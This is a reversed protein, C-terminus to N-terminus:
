ERDGRRELLAYRLIAVGIGISLTAHIADMASLPEVYQNIAYVGLGSLVAAFFGAQQGRRRNDASVEDNILRRVERSRFWGGGTAMVLLLVLIWVAWASVKVHDVLRPGDAVAGWTYFSVQWLLFLLGQLMLIRGRRRSLREAIQATSPNDTM